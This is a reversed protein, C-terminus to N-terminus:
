LGSSGPGIERVRAAALVRRSDAAQEPAFRAVIGLAAIGAYGRFAEVWLEQLGALMQAELRPSVLSYAAQMDDDMAHGLRHTRVVDPTGLETLWTNHVRRLGKFELRPVARELVYTGAEAYNTPGRLTLIGGTAAQAWLEGWRSRRWREGEHTPFAVVAGDGLFAFWAALLAALGLPAVLTRGHGSKPYKLRPQQKRREEWTGEDDSVTIVPRSSGSVLCDGQDLAASEGPRIGMWAATLVRLFAGMGAVSGPGVLQHMNVAAALVQEHTAHLKPRVTAQVRAARRGRNSRGAAALANRAVLNLGDPDAADALMTKMLTRIAQITRPSYARTRRRGPPGTEETGAALRKLWGNIEAAAARGIAHQGYRPQVHTAWLSEYTDLTNEDVDIYDVWMEWLQDWTTEGKRPDVWTGSNIRSEEERGWDVAAKKTSWRQGSGPHKSYPRYKGDSQKVYVYWHKGRKQGYAM